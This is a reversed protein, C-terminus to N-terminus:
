KNVANYQEDTVEELWENSCNEGPMEIALHSFWSDAAAGHWHKVGAPIVVTDGPKMEVAPKGYECYYGRGGGGSIFFCCIFFGFCKKSRDKTKIHKILRRRRYAM